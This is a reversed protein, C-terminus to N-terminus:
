LITPPTGIGPEKFEFYISGQVMHIHTHACVTTLLKCHGQNEWEHRVGLSSPLSWSISVIQWCGNVDIESFLALICKGAEKATQHPWGGFNEGLPHVYICM